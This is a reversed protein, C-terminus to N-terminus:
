CDWPRPIDDRESQYDYQRVVSMKVKNSLTCCSNRPEPKPVHNKVLCVISFRSFAYYLGNWAAIPIAVERMIMWRRLNEAFVSSPSGTEKERLIYGIPGIGIFSLGSRRSRKSESSEPVRSGLSKSLMAPDDLCEWERNTLKLMELANTLARLGIKLTMCPIHLQSRRGRSQRTGLHSWSLHDVCRGCYHWKVREV